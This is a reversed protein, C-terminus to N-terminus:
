AAPERPEKVPRLDTRAETLQADLVVVAAGLTQEWTWEGRSWHEFVEALAPNRFGDTGIRLLDGPTPPLQPPPALSTPLFSRIAM